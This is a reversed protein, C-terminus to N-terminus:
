LDDKSDIKAIDDEAMAKKHIEKIMNCLRDIENESANEINDIQKKITVKQDGAKTRIKAAMITAWVNTLFGLIM